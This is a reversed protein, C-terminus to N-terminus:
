LPGTVLEDKVPVPKKDRFLLVFIVLVVLAIGAPILWVTKWDNPYTKYVYNQVMSGIFMGVGYTALTIMGQASSKYREGAKQDTYIQGTVFFFDYCIGHLLIGLLLMVLSQSGYAFLLYRSTWALIAIILINKVGLRLLFVPLLLMFLIESVQGWTQLSSPNSVGSDTLFLNTLNYYFSLPICILLSALFFIAFSRDRFMSFADLGVVQAFSTGQGKGSPPTNPLTFSYLGLAVSGVVGIWFLNATGAVGFLDLLYGSVIWGITGLVRISGFDKEPNGLQRFAVSNALAMTPMYLMNYLLIVWYFTDFDHVTTLWFFVAAGLLHLVGLVRQAPFFKDAFMGVFFPSVIAAIANTSYATGIQDPANLGKAVYTGMPVYWSGWVLFELFMLASLRVRTSLSM